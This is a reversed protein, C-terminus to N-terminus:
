TPTVTSKQMVHTIRPHKKDPSRKIQIGCPIHRLSQRVTTHNGHSIHDQSPRCPDISGDVLGSWTVAVVFLGSQVHYKIELRSRLETLLFTHQLTGPQARTYDFM